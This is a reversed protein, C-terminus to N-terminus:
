EDEPLIVDFDKETDSIHHEGDIVWTYKRYYDRSWMKTAKLKTGFLYFKDGYDLKSFKVTRVIPNGNQDTLTVSFNHSNCHLTGEAIFTYVYNREMHGTKDELKQYVGACLESSTFFDGPKLDTFKM